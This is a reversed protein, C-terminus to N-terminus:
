YKVSLQISIDNRWPSYITQLGSGQTDSDLVRRMSYRGELRILGSRNSWRILLVTHLSQGYLFTQGMSGALSPLYTSLGSGSKGEDSYGVATSIMLSSSPPALRVLQQFSYGTGSLTHLLQATSQLCWAETPQLTYLLRIRHYHKQKDDSTHRFVYRATLASQRNLSHLLQYQFEQGTRSVHCGYPPWSHYFFDAYATMQWSEWPEAKIHLLIGNENQIRGTRSLASAQFSHYSSSYYRQTGSLTYRASPKWTIRNLTAIGHLSDSSSYATEGAIILRYLSKGYHIGANSFTKGRPYYRRYLQAGPSLTRNFKQCFATTGLHWGKHTWTFNGGYLFTNVNNHRSRESTTRHLGTSLLTRVSGDEQLTADLQRASGFLSIEMGKGLSLTVAAGRLFHIEDTGTRARIGTQIKSAPITRTFWSSGGIVLGEGFGMRYDGIVATRIPGTQRLEAYAGWSDVWREGADKEIHGGARLHKGAQLQYLTRHYLADGAYGDSVQYGRRYYLPIDLRTVLTNRIPTFFQKPTNEKGQPPGFTIFVSLFRRTRSDLEPILRLEGLTQIPGHLYIYTHIEEIQQDDLFPLRLLDDRNATNINIPNEHLFKLEQMQNEWQQLFNDVADKTEEEGDDDIMQWDAYEQAFDDWTYSQAICPMSLCFFMQILM